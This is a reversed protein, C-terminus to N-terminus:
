PVRFLLERFACVLPAPCIRFVERGWARSAQGYDPVDAIPVDVEFTIHEDGVLEPDRDHYVRIERATPFLRQVAEMMPDLYPEVQLKNALALIEPSWTWTPTEATVITM